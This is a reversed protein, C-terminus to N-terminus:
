QCIHEKCEKDSLWIEHDIFYNIQYRAQELNLVCPVNDVATYHIGICDIGQQALSNVVSEVHIREDDIFIVKKPFLGLVQLFAM